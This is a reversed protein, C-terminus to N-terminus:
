FLSKKDLEKKSLTAKDFFESLTIKPNSYLYVETSNKAYIDITDTANIYADSSNSANIIVDKAFFDKGKLSSNGLTEVEFINSSGDISVIARDILNFVAEKSDITGKITSSEEARIFINDCLIEFKLNSTKKSNIKLLKSNLKLSIDSNDFANITLTDIPLLNKSKINSKNYSYIEKLNKNVKIHVVLEKKKLIKDKIKISLTGKNIETIISNQLNSDTEVSVSQNDNYVLLVDVDDIIELKNFESINRNETTVEKNGKLKEQATIVSTIFLTFLFAIKYSNKM